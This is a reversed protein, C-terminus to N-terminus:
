DLSEPRPLDLLYGGNVRHVRAGRLDTWGWDEDTPNHPEGVLSLLDRMTACDYVSILEILNDLVEEAEARTPISIEPVDSSRRSVRESRRPREEERERRGGRSRASGMRNYSTYGGGGGRSRRRGSSGSSLANEITGISADAIADKIGPVLVEFLTYEVFSVNDEPKFAELFRKRLPKKRITAKNKTIRVVEKKEPAAKESRRERAPKGMHNNPPFENEM